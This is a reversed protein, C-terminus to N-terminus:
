RMIMITGKVSGLMISNGQKRLLWRDISETGGPAGFTLNLDGGLALTGSTMGAEVVAAARSNRYNALNEPDKIVVTVGDALTLNRGIRLHRGSFVDDAAVEIRETVTVYGNSVAGCGALFPVTVETGIAPFVISGNEWLTLGAGEPMGGQAANPIQYYLAGEEVTVDGKFTHAKVLENTGHFCLPQAGRKTLGKWGTVPQDELTVACAYSNTLGGASLTATTSGDAYGWGPSTVVINTVAHTADDYLAFASAGAGAGSITIVPSGILSGAAVEAAFGADTPM